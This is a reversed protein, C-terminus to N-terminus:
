VVEYALGTFGSVLFLLYVAAVASVTGVRM